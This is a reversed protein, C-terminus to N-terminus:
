GSCRVSRFAKEIWRPGRRACWAGTSKDFVPVQVIVAVITPDDAALHLVHSTSLSSGWLAIRQGDVVALSRALEVAARWDELQRRCDVLQRPEGESRGFHRYDFTLVAMRAEAFRRAYAELRDQTGSFGHGMVLCPVPESSDPLYLTAACRTGHSQFTLTEAM